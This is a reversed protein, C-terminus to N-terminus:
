GFLSKAEMVLRELYKLYYDSLEHINKDLLEIPADSLKVDMVLSFGPLNNPVDVYFNETKGDGIDIEWGCGGIRDGIFFGKANPPTKYRQILEYPNGSFSVSASTNLTGEKLIQSRLKYLYQMIKDTSMEKVKPNYWEDFSIGVISRLNQLVNTVARGFVVVNRFGAIRAKPDKGMILQYGLKATFLTDEAEKLVQNSTRDM